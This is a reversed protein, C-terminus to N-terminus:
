HLCLSIPITINKFPKILLAQMGLKRAEAFRPSADVASTLVFHTNQMFQHCSMSKLLAIGDMTPMNLDSIVLDFRREAMLALADEGNGCLTVNHIGLHDLMQGLIQRSVSMDDVVLVQLDTRRAM